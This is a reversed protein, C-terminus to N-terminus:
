VILKLINIIIKKFLTKGAAKFIFYFSIHIKHLLFLGEDRLPGFSEATGGKNAYFNHESKGNVGTRRQIQPYLGKMCPESAPEFVM